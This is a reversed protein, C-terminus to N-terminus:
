PHFIVQLANIIAQIAKMAHYPKIDGWIRFMHAFWEVIEAITEKDSLKKGNFRELAAIKKNSYYIVSVPDNEQKGVQLGYTFGEETPTTFFIGTIPIFESDM